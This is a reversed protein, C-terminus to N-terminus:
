IREGGRRKGSQEPQGSRKQHPAAGGRELKGANEEHSLPEKAPNRDQPKQNEACQLQYLKRYSPHDALLASHTSVTCTGGEIWIVQDSHTFEELRHSILFIVSEPAAARLNQLIQQETERDVAALPDDLILVPYPHFLTRALAIRAQQGGSLRVGGEGIPTRVGDEFERVEKEICVTRLMPRVDGDRGLRINEEITGAFLEPQHGLYGTVAPRGPAAAEAYDQGGFRLSGQWPYECLFIRGLTSKGSAVEGTIGILQGPEATFSLGSFVPASGPYAFSLNEATVAAPAAIGSEPYETTETMFPRIRQWSVRAKQVANFLKAAHSSKVALKTFCSLYTSFAAINWVRWGAGIVNRGGLWLIFITSTMAVVQYLPQMTNEWINARISTKEYDTLREEYSLNQQTENGFIRYLLANQVRDLTADNLRGASERSAATARTVVTKMKEAIVYAIPPFLLVILSLRVDYVFLMVIYAAMAVGTDFIETTFKRMGEACADADTIARTMLAGVGEQQLERRSRHVLSRYLTDKMELGVRNAFKRVYLRKLCRMGQVFAIVLVYTIALRIMDAPTRRGALIDAFYQALQGEFWPGAIMGLNYLIGTVTVIILNNKQHIFYTSIRSLDAHRDSM